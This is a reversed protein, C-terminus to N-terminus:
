RITLSGAGAGKRRVHLRSPRTIVCTSFETGTIRIQDPKRRATAAAASPPPAHDALVAEPGSFLTIAPDLEPRLAEAAAPDALAVFRPRHRRAQEAVREWSSGAALAEVRLAGGSAEVLDLTQTGISGTSGLLALAKMPPLPAPPPHGPVGEPM